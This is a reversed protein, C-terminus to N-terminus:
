GCASRAPTKGMRIVLCICKKAIIQQEMQKGNDKQRLQCIGQCQKAYKKSVLDIQTKSFM